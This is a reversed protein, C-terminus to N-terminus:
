STKLINYFVHYKPNNNKVLRIIEAETSKVSSLIYIYKLKTFNSFISLDITSNLDTSDDIKITVIEIDNSTLNSLSVNNLSKADTFLCVPNDGYTKVDSLSVYISPLMDKVLSEIRLPNSDINTSTNRLSAIFPNLHMIKQSQPLNTETSGIKSEQAYFTTTFFLLFFLIVKIKQLQFLRKFPVSNKLLNNTNIPSKKTM